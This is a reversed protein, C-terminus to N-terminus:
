ETYGESDGRKKIAEVRAIYAAAGDGYAREEVAPVAVGDDIVGYVKTPVHTVLADVWGPSIGSEGNLWKEAAAVGAQGFQQCERAHFLEHRITLDEAWFETRPPYGNLKNMDPTLDSVVTTYNDQTIDPDTESSVDTKGRSDVQYTIPHDVTATIKYVDDTQTISKKSLTCTGWETKGFDDTSGSRTISPNYSLVSEISRTEEASVGPPMEDEAPRTASALSGATAEEGSPGAVGVGSKEGGGVADHLTAISALNERARHPFNRSSQSSPRGANFYAASASPTPAGSTVGTHVPVRSFEHAFCSEADGAISVGSESVQTGRLNRVLAPALDPQRQRGRIVAQKNM